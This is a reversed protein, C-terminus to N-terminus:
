RDLTLHITSLAKPMGFILHLDMKKFGEIDWLDDGAACDQVVDTEAIPVQQLWLINISAAAPSWGSGAGGPAMKAEMQRLRLEFREDIEWLDRLVEVVDVRQRNPTSTMSTTATDRELTVVSPPEVM